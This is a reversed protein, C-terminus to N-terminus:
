HPTTLTNLIYLCEFLYLISVSVSHQHPCTQRRVRGGTYLATSFTVDVTLDRAHILSNVLRARNDDMGSCFNYKFWFQVQVLITGFRYRGEYASANAACRM